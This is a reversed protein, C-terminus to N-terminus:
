ELARIYHRDRVTFNLDIRECGYAKGRADYLENLEACLKDSARLVNMTRGGTHGSFVFVQLGNHGLHFSQRGFKETASTGEFALIVLSKAGRLLTYCKPLDSKM